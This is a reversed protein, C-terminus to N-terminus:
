LGKVGPDYEKVVKTGEKLFFFRKLHLKFEKKTSKNDETVVKIGLILKGISQGDTLSSVLIHYVPFFIIFWIVILYPLIADLNFLKSWILDYELLTGWQMFLAIGVGIILDIVLAVLRLIMPADKYEIREKSM